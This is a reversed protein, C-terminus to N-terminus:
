SPTIQGMRGSRYDDFATVIEAKTNMVFPGYRVVPERLPRGALVVVELGGVGGRIRVGDAAGGAAGPAGPGFRVLQARGAVRADRGFEGSGSLVYAFAHEDSPVELDLTAGEDIRAHVYLIPVHTNAPGVVGLATGAIVKLSVGDREVTPIDAARLDQYRPPTMKAARPLNVWLQLGHSRGGERQLRTGPMESHVVGAGATMWQVDGTGIIGHNGASDRHEVEGELMYTVTEFGRHPHDPAGIAEGPAVETPGMEDLLLFPDIMDLSTTPFPRHVLFGGGELTEIADVIASVPRLNTSIDTM